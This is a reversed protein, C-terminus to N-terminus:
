GVRVINNRRHDYYHCSATPSPMRRGPAAMQRSSSVYANDRIRDILQIIHFCSTMWLVTLVYRIMSGDTSSSVVTVLVFLEAVASPGRSASM